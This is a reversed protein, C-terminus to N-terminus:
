QQHDQGIMLCKYGIYGVVLLRIEVIVAVMVVVAIVVQYAHFPHMEIASAEAAM